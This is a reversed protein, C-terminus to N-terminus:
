EAAGKQRLADREAPSLADATGILSERTVLTALEEESWNETGAPRRPLVMWRIDSTSDHV